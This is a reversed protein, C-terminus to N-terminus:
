RHIGDQVHTGRVPAFRDRPGTVPQFKPFNPVHPDHCHQCHNKIRDGRSLDWYGQMGGHAGHQYDRYQSGHCQACLDMSDEFAVSAGNALRLTAYNETSNHCSTCTLTGHSFRLKQHFENLEQTQSLERNVHRMSHCAACQLTIPNGKADAHSTSVGDPTSHRRIKTVFPQSSERVTGVSDSKQAALEGSRASIDCGTVCGLGIALLTSLAPQSIHCRVIPSERM